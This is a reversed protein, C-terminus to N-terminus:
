GVMNADLMYRGFFRLIDEPINSVLKADERVSVGMESISDTNLIARQLFLAALKFLMTRETESLKTKGVTFEVLVISNNSITTPLVLEKGQKIITISELEEETYPTSFDNTAMNFSTLSLIKNIYSCDTYLLNSGRGQLEAQIPEDSGFFYVGRSELWARAQQLYILANSAGSHGGGTEDLYSVFTDLLAGETIVKPKM